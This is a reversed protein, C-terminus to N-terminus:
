KTEPQPQLVLSRRIRMAEIQVEPLRQKKGRMIRPHVPFMMCPWRNGIVPKRFYSSMIGPFGDPCQSLKQLPEFMRLMHGLSLDHRQLVRSDAVPLVDGSFVALTLRPEKTM